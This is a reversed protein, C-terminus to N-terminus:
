PVFWKAGICAVHLCLTLFKLNSVCGMVQKSNKKQQGM